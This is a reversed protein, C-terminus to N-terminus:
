IPRRFKKRTELSLLAVVFGRSESALLLLFGDKEGAKPRNRPGLLQKSMIFDKGIM